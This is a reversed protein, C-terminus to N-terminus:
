SGARSKSYRDRNRELAKVLAEAACFVRSRELHENISYRSLKKELAKVHAEVASFASSQDM